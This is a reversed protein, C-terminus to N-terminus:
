FYTVLLLNYNNMNTIPPNKFLPGLVANFSDMPNGMSNWRLQPIAINQAVRGFNVDLKIFIYAYETLDNNDIFRSVSSIIYYSKLVIKTM